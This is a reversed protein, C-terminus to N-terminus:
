VVGADHQVPVVVHPLDHMLQVDAQSGLVVPVGLVQTELHRDRDDIRHLLRDCVDVGV